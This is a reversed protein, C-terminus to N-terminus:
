KSLLRDLVEHARRLSNSVGGPGATGKDAISGKEDVICMRNPWGAYTTGVRDDIGDVLVPITIGLKEVFDRAIKQREELSKPSAVQFPNNPMTWGDTPHAERMYIMYFHVRDKYAAYLEGTAKSTGVFPPCTCSGFVLVVPRGRLASLTVSKRGTVDKLTFDPAPDGNQLHGQVIEPRAGPRSEAAQCVPGATWLLLAIVKVCATLFIKM